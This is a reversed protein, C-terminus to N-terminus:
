LGVIEAIDEPTMGIDRLARLSTDGASKSLKRGKDDLILRHHHYTPVPLDFLHQLVRHVSTAHFLDFGRVVHTIDQEADDLVVSLHYSTPTDSRGLVVDGWQEPTALFIGTEGRPGSGTEEFHLTEDIRDLTAEMDLRINHLPSQFSHERQKERSWHKEMGPYLPSGDPDNPWNGETRVREAVAKRIDGRSMFAPYALGNAELKELAERYFSFHESQRRPPEDWEIGLWELDELMQAELQPTCRVRDIDEIRLLFRGNLARAQRFCVLASFAHGLHLAGNPSPAFRFVPQAPKQM